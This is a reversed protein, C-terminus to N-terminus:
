GKDWQKFFEAYVDRDAITAGRISCVRAAFELARPMTQAMNWGSLIGLIMISSFADGAGVTDAINEVKVPAGNLVTDDAIIRAGQEGLTLILQRIQFNEIFAQCTADGPQSGDLTIFEIDNLKLWDAGYMFHDVQSREWWPERLNIDVFVPAGSSRISELAQRSVPHRAALSGHYILSVPIDKLAQQVRSDDIFDYAQEALISFRPQGDQLSITVKGTPHESDIQIGSTDLGWDVLTDIVQKGLEDDGIRSILLPNFGFGRLHWAVNLPAGGMVVSGDPFSDFLVEGFVIPRGQLKHNLEKM